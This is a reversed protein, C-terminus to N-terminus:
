GLKGYVKDCQSCMYLNDGLYTGKIHNGGSCFISGRRDRKYQIDAVKRANAMIHDWNDPVPPRGTEIDKTIHELVRQDYPEDTVTQVEPM